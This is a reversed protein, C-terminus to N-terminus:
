GRWSRQQYITDHLILNLLNDLLIFFFRQKVLFIGGLSVEKEALPFWGRPGIKEQIEEYGISKDLLLMEIMLKQQDSIKGM